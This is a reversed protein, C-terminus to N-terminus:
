RARAASASPSTTSACTPRSATSGTRVAARGDFRDAVKKRAPMTERVADDADSASGLMRYCHGTIAVRHAEFQAVTPGFWAPLNARPTTPPPPGHHETVDGASRRPSPPSRRACHM